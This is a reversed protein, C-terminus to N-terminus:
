KQVPRYLLNFHNLDTKWFIIDGPSLIAFTSICKASQKSWASLLRECPLLLIQLWLMYILCIAMADPPFILSLNWKYPMGGDIFAVEWVTYGVSETSIYPLIFWGEREGCLGCILLLFRNKQLDHAVGQTKYRGLRIEVSAFFFFFFKECFGIVRSM